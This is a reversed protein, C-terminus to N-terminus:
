KQSLKHTPQSPLMSIEVPVPQRDRRTFLDHILLYFCPIIFLTLLTAISLGSFVV